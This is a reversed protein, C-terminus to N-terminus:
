HKPLRWFGGNEPVASAYQTIYYIATDDVQVGSIALHQVLIEYHGTGDLRARLLPSVDFGGHWYVYTDDFDDPGNSLYPAGPSVVVQGCLGGHCNPVPDEPARVLQQNDDIWYVLGAHIGVNGEAVVPAFAVLGSGDKNMRLLQTSTTFFVYGGAGPDVAINGQFADSSAGGDPSRDAYIRVPTKLGLDVKWLDKSGSNRWYVFGSDIGAQFPLTWTAGFDSDKALGGDSDTRTTWAIGTPTGGQLASATWFVESPSAVLGVVNPAVERFPAIRGTGKDYHYVYGTDFDGFFVSGTTGPDAFLGTLRGLGTSMAVPCWGPACIEGACAACAADPAANADSAGAADADSMGAADADSTGAADADSTGATGDAGADDPQGVEPVHVLPNCSLLVALSLVFPLPATRM